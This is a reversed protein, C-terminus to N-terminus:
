RQNSCTSCQNAYRVIVNAWRKIEEKLMISDKSNYDPLKGEHFKSISIEKLSDSRMHSGNLKRRKVSAEKEPPKDDGNGDGSDIAEKISM